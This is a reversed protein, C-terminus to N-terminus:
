ASVSLLKCSTKFDFILCRHACLGENRLVAWAEDAVEVIIFNSLIMYSSSADSVEALLAGRFSDSQCARAHTGPGPVISSVFSNLCVAVSSLQRKSGGLLAVQTDGLM